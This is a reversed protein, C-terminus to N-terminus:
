FMVYVRCFRLDFGYEAGKYFVMRFLFINDAFAKLCVKERGKIAGFPAVQRAIFTKNIEPKTCLDSIFNGNDTAAGKSLYKSASRSSQHTAVVVPILPLLPTTSSQFYKLVGIVRTTTDFIFSQFHAPSHIFLIRSFSEYSTLLCYLNLFGICFPPRFDKISNAKGPCICMVPHSCAFQNPLFIYIYPYALSFSLYMNFKKVGM